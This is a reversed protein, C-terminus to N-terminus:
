FILKKLKERSADSIEKWVKPLNNEIEDGLNGKVYLIAIEAISAINMYRAGFPDPFEIIGMKDHFVVGDLTTIEMKHGSDEIPSVILFSTYGENRAPASAIRNQITDFIKM